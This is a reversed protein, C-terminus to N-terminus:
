LSEDPFNELVHASVVHVHVVEGGLVHVLQSAQYDICQLHHVLVLALALLLGPWAWPGQLLPLLILLLLLLSVLRFLVFLLALLRVRVHIVIIM